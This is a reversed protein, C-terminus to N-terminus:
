VDFEINLANLVADIPTFITAVPSGAFLLGVARRDDADLVLSGSDGGQSMADAIVQGTFRATRTGRATSYTVNVTANLLTVVSNTVGTTRGSKRVRMGLSPNKVGAVMGVGLIDGDFMENNLPRALAADVVNDLTASFMAAQIPTLAPAPMDATQSGAAQQSGTAQSGTAQSGTAQSGTAQIRRESGSIRAVMNSVNVLTDVIDCGSPQMPPPPYPGTGPGPDPDPSPGPTPDPQPQFADELYRLPIFRELRAVVDGPNIGGDLAAPQLISDGTQADNSNAFVHNNSLLFSEGTTRDRVIGGLTGATIQYHGMSTGVPVVPRYRDRHGIQQAVIHGIEYVDTRVGGVERPIVDDAALASLPVKQQVLVVVSPEDSVDGHASKYGVAVGVVNPKSMLMIQYLRQAQLIRQFVSAM